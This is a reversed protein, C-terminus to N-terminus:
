YSETLFVSICDAKSDRFRATVGSDRVYSNNESLKDEGTGVSIVGSYFWRWTGNAGPRGTGLIKQMDARSMGLRLGNGTALDSRVLSSTVCESVGASSDSELLFGTLEHFDTVVGTTYTVVTPDNPWKASKYCEDIGGLPHSSSSRTPSGFKAEADSLFSKNLTLGAITFTAAPSEPQGKFDRDLQRESVFADGCNWQKDTAGWASPSSALSVLSSILAIAAIRNVTNFINM